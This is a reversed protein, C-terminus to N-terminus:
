VPWYYEIKPEETWGLQSYWTECPKPFVNLRAQLRELEDITRLEHKKPFGTGTFYNGRKNKIVYRLAM